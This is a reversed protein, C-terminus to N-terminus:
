TLIFAFDRIVKPFKLLENYSKEPATIEKLKGVKLEFCYVDQDIDFQKLVSSKVKCEYFLSTGGTGCVKGIQFVGPAARKIERRFDIGLNKVKM